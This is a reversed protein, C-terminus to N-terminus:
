YGNYGADYGNEFGERFYRRYLERDGLRSSYDKTAKEYVNSNRFNSTRNRNRDDRGVKMGENYGANLATQRLQFSGGYAGYRDWNRGRRGERDVSQPGVAQPGYGADYGNQFGERYYRRYLERDGLRRSYDATAKQYESSNRYDSSSNRNRDNSGVKIGENYGANLATQRLNFSGGYNGYRDWNRGNRQGNDIRDRDGLGENQRNWQWSVGYASALSNLDTKVASWDNESRAAAPRGMFNDIVAAKQLVTEVDAAVSRRDNFRQRLQEVSNDFASVFTNINDEARTGDRRSRDLSADLSNRFRGSNQELRRLIDSIQRDSVRYPQQAQGTVGGVISIGILLCLGLIAGALKNPLHRM